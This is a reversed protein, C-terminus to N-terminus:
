SKHKVVLIKCPAFKCLYETFSGMFIGGLGKHTRMSSIALDANVEKIFSVMKSKPDPDLFCHYYVPGCQDPYPLIAKALNELIEEASKRIEGFEDVGPYSYPFFENFYLQQPFVYTFHVEANQLFPSGKLQKLEEIELENKLSVCIVVTNKKASM